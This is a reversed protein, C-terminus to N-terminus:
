CVNTQLFCIKANQGQKQGFQNKMHKKKGSEERCQFSFEMLHERITHTQVLATHRVQDMYM